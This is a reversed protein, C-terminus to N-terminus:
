SKARLCRVEHVIRRAAEEVQEITMLHSLSFRMASKLIKESVGMAQLVPSPLLSGSSCASGTSCDIGALDLRILLLDSACGPFSINLTHVLHDTSHGNVVVPATGTRLIELFRGRLQRCSEQREEMEECALRLAAAMGVALAVPETGPRQGQQQHGGWLLPKLRHGRKVLLAGIGKPGYFKHASCSLATVDLTHFDVSIKGVAQTADTHFVFGQYEKVLAAIDQVTGMEHNALQVSIFRPQSAIAKDSQRSCVKGESDVPLFRV